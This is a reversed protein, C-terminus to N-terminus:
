SLNVGLEDINFRAPQSDSRHCKIDDGTVEERNLRGNFRGRTASWVSLRRAVKVDM